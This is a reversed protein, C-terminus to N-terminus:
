QTRCLPSQTEDSGTGILFLLIGARYFLIYYPKLRIFKFSAHLVLYLSPRQNSPLIHHERRWVPKEGMIVEHPGDPGLEEVRQSPKALPRVLLPPLVKGSHPWVHGQPPLSSVGEIERLQARGRVGTATPISTRQPYFLWLDGLVMAVTSGTGDAAM